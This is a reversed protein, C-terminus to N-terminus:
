LQYTDLSHLLFFEYCLHVALFQIKEGIIMVTSPCFYVTFGM